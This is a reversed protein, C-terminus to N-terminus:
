VHAIDCKVHLIITYTKYNWVVTAHLWLTSNHSILANFRSAGDYLSLCMHVIAIFSSTYLQCYSTFISFPIRLFTAPQTEVCVWVMVYPARHRRTSRPLCNDVPVGVTNAWAVICAPITGLGLPTYCRRPCETSSIARDSDHGHLSSSSAM